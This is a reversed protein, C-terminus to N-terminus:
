VRYFIAPFEPDFVIERDELSHWQLFKMVKKRLFFGNVEQKSVPKKDSLNNFYVDDKLFDVECDHSLSNIVEFQPYFFEKIWTM